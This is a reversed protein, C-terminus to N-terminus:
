HRYYTNNAPNFTLSSNETTKIEYDLSQLELRKGVVNFELFCKLRAGDRILNQIEGASQYFDAVTDTIKKMNRQILRIDKRAKKNGGILTQFAPIDSLYDTETIVDIQRLM